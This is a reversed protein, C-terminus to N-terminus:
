GPKNCATKCFVLDDAPPAINRNSPPNASIFSKTLLWQCSRFCSIFLRNKDGRTTAALATAKRKRCAQVRRGRSAISGFRATSVPANGAIPTRVLNGTGRVRGVDSHRAIVADRQIDAWCHCPQDQPRAASAGRLTDEHPASSKGDISRDLYTGLALEVEAAFVQPFWRISPLASMSCPNHGAVHSDSGVANQVNDGPAAIAKVTQHKSWSPSM